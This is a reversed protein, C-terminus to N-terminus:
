NPRAHQRYEGLYELELPHDGLRVNTLNDNEVEANASDAAADINLEGNVLNYDMGNYKSAPTFAYVVSWLCFNLARETFMAPHANQLVLAMAEGLLEVESLGSWEYESPGDDGLVKVALEILVQALEGNTLTTNYNQLRNALEANVQKMLDSKNIPSTM